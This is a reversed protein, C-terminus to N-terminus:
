SKNTEVCSKDGPDGIVDRFCLRHKGSKRIEVAVESEALMWELIKPLAM